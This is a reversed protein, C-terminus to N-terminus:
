DMRAFIHPQKLLAYLDEDNMKDIQDGTTAEGAVGIEAAIAQATEAYDGTVICTNVQAQELLAIAEKVGNRVPDHIIALAVFHLESLHDLEQSNSEIYGYATVRKGLSAQKQAEEVLQKKKESPLMSQMIVMEPSGAIAHVVRLNDQYIIDRWPKNDAFGTFGIQALTHKKIELAHAVAKDTPDNSYDPLALAIKEQIFGPLTNVLGDVTYFTELTMSSETITGTKDSMVSTVQGIVEIGHLRKVVVQKKALAFAALALAMTIIIPPQGPIMLFTLSLWTLVMEQLGLGRFFGIIPILASALLAFIALLKALKTMSEQLVTREKETKQVQEAIKGLESTAGVAMIIAIGQGNVVTTGSFVSTIREVLPTDGMLVAGANKEIPSSEGTLSSENIMLGYSSVLRGDAPIATGESLILLDGVVIDTTKIETIQGDRMVKCTPSSLNKLQTMVRDTRYKNLFEVSIYAFVVFVMVLAEIMKGFLFSLLAISLLVLMMPEKIGDFVLAMISKQKSQDITNSGFRKRNEIVQVSSLGKKSDVSFLALLKEQPIAWWDITHISNKM